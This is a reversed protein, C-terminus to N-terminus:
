HGGDTIAAAIRRHLAVNEGRDTRVEVITTGESALADKLATRFEDLTAPAM